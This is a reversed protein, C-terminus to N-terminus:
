HSAFVCVLRVAGLAVDEDQNRDVEDKNPDVENQDSDVGVSEPDNPIASPEPVPDEKVLFHLPEHTFIKSLDHSSRYRTKTSLLVVRVDKALHECLEVFENEHNSRVFHQINDVCFVEIEAPDITKRKLMLLIRGITGIVIHPREKLQRWDEQFDSGGVSLHTTVLASAPSASVLTYTAQAAEHSSSLVIAQTKRVSNDLEKIIVNSITETKGPLGQIRNVDKDSLRTEPLERHHM